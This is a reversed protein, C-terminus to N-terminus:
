LTADYIMSYNELEMEYIYFAFIIEKACFILEIDIFLM